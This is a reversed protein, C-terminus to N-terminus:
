AIGKSAPELARVGAKASLYAVDSSRLILEKELDLIRGNLADITGRASESHENLQATQRAIHHELREIEIQRDSHAQTLTELRGLMAARAQSIDSKAANAAQLNASQRACKTELGHIALELQRKAQSLHRVESILRDNDGKVEASIKEIIRTTSQLNDIELRLQGNENDRAKQAVQNKDFNRILEAKLETAEKEKQQRLHDASDRERSLANVQDRLAAVEDASALLSAEYNTSRDALHSASTFAEHYKEALEAIRVGDCEAQLRHGQVEMRLGEVEEQAIKLQNATSLLLDDSEKKSVMLLRNRDEMVELETKAQDIRAQAKELDPALKAILEQREDAQGSKEHYRAVLCEHEKELAAKAFALKRHEEFIMNVKTQSSSLKGVLPAIETLGEVLASLMRDASIHTEALSDFLLGGPVMEDVAQGFGFAGHENACDSGQPKRNSFLNLISAM